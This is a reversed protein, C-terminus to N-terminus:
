AAKAWQGGELKEFRRQLTQRIKEKWFRTRTPRRPSIERYIEQLEGKGGLNEIAKEVVAAWGSRGEELATRYIRPMDCVAAAEHYLLLGSLRPAPDRTFRALMLPKSLGHFVNRPLMEQSITWHSNWRVVNKATQFFYAPLIMIVQGGDDLLPHSRELFGDFVEFDFPPNGIVANAKEVPLRTSRYDGIVVEHGKAAAMAALRPDCEVGINRYTPPLADLFRGIGCSPEIVVAGEEFKPLAHEVIAEAVWSPTMWQGLSSDHGHQNPQTQCGFLDEVM